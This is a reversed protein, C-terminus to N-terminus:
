WFIKTTSEGTCYAIIMTFNKVEGTRHSWIVSLNKSAILVFKQIFQLLNIQSSEVHATNHEIFM